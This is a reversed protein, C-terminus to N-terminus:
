TAYAVMFFREGGGQAVNELGTVKNNHPDWVYLDQLTFRQAIGIIDNRTFTGFTGLLAISPLASQGSAGAITKLKTIDARYRNWADGLPDGTGQNICKLEVYIEDAPGERRALHFDCRAAHAQNPTNTGDLRFYGGQNPDRYPQERTCIQKDEICIRLAIEVQLWVEWGGRIDDHSALYSATEPPNYKRNLFNLLEQARM